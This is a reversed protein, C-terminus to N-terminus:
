YGEFFFFFFCWFSNFVSNYSKSLKVTRLTCRFKVRCLLLPSVHLLNMPNEFLTNIIVTVQKTYSLNDMFKSKLPIAFCSLASFNCLKLKLVPNEFNLLEICLSFVTIGLDTSWLICLHLKNECELM